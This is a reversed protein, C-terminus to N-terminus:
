LDLADSKEKMQRFVCDIKWQLTEIIKPLSDTSGNDELEKLYQICDYVGTLYGLLQSDKM